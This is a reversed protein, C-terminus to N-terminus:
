GCRSTSTRTTPEPAVQPMKVMERLPQSIDHAALTVVEGGDPKPENSKAACGALVSIALAVSTRRM